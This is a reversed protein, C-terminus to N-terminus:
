GEIKIGYFIIKESYERLVDIGKQDIGYVKPDFGQVKRKRMKGVDGGLQRIMKAAVLERIPKYLQNQFYNLKQNISATTAPEVRASLAYIVSMIELHILRLDYNEKMDQLAQRQGTTFLAVDGRM